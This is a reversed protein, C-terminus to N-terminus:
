QKITLGYDPQGRDPGYKATFDRQSTAEAITYSHRLAKTLAEALSSLPM